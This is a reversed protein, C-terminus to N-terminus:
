PLMYPLALVASSAFTLVVFAATRIALYRAM